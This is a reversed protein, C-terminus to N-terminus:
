QWILPFRYLMVQVILERDAMFFFDVEALLVDIGM